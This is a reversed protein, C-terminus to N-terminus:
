AAGRERRQAEAKAEAIADRELRELTEMVANMLSALARLRVRIEDSARCCSAAELHTRLRKTSPKCNRRIEGAVTWPTM